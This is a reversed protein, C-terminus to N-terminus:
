RIPQAEQLMLAPREVVYGREGSQRFWCWEIRLSGARVAYVWLSREPTIAGHVIRLRLAPEEPHVPLLSVGSREEVYPLRDLGSPGFFFDFDGKTFPMGALLAIDLDRLPTTTVRFELVGHLDGSVPLMKFEVQRNDPPEGFAGTQYLWNTLPGGLALYFVLGCGVIFSGGAVWWTKTTVVWRPELRRTVFGRLGPWTWLYFGLVAVAVSAVIVIVQPGTLVLVAVLGLLAETVFMLAFHRIHRLLSDRDKKCQPM